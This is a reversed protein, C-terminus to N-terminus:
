MLRLHVCIFASLFKVVFFVFSVLLAGFISGCIVGIVGISSEQVVSSVSWVSVAGYGPHRGM